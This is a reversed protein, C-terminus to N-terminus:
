NQNKDFFIELCKTDCSPYDAEINSLFKKMFKKAESIEPKIKILLRLADMAELFDKETFEYEESFVYQYTEMEKKVTQFDLLSLIWFADTLNSVSFNCWSMALFESLMGAEGELPAIWEKIKAKVLDLKKPYMMLDLNIRHIDPVQQLFCSTVIFSDFICNIRILEGRERDLFLWVNERFFDTPDLFDLELLVKLKEKEQETFENQKM